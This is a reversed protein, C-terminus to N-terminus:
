NLKLLRVVRSSTTADKPSCNKSDITQAAIKYTAALKM